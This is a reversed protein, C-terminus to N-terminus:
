FLSRSLVLLHWGAYFSIAFGLGIRFFGSMRTMKILKRPERVSSEDGSNSESHLGERSHPFVRVKEERKDQKM